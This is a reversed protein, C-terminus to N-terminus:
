RRGETAPVGDRVGVARRGRSDALGNSSEPATERRTVAGRVHRDFGLNGAVMTIARLDAQPDLQGVLIAICDDQAIDTDIVLPVTM